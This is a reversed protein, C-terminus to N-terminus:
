ENAVDRVTQRQQQQKPDIALLVFESSIYSKTCYFVYDPNLALIQKPLRWMDEKIHYLCVALKPKLTSITHELGQIAYTEAGELDMKIYTPQVNNEKLWEDTNICQVELVKLEPNPHLEWYLKEQASIQCSAGIHNLKEKFFLKQNQSGVALRYCNDTPYGNNKLNLQLMNFSDTIPEFSYVKAAGERYFWIATDGMCAGCNLVIEGPEVEFKREKDYAYQRMYFTTYLPFVNFNNSLTQIHPLNMSKVEKLFEALSKEHAAKTLPSIYNKAFEKDFSYFILYCLEQAFLEKSEEDGFNFANMFEMQSIVDHHDGKLQVYYATSVKSLKEPSFSAAGKFSHPIYLECAAKLKQDFCEQLTM